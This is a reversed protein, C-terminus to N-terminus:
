GPPSAHSGHITLDVGVGGIRGAHRGAGWCGSCNSGAVRVRRAQSEGRRPLTNGVPDDRIDLFVEHCLAKVYERARRDADGFVVRTVAPPPVDSLRALEDLERWLRDGDITIAASKRVDSSV